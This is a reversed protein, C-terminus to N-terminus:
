MTSVILASYVNKLPKCNTSVPVIHVANLHTWSLMCSRTSHANELIEKLILVLWENRYDRSKKMSQFAIIKWVNVSGVCVKIRHLWIFKYRWITYKCYSVFLYLSLKNKDLETNRQFLSIFVLLYGKLISTRELDYICLLMNQILLLRTTQGSLSRIRKM